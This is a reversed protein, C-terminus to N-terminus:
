RILRVGVRAPTQITLIDEREARAPAAAVCGGSRCTAASQQRLTFPCFSIRSMVLRSVPRQITGLPQGM